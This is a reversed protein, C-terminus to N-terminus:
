QQYRRVHGGSRTIQHDISPRQSLNCTAVSASYICMLNVCVYREWICIETECWPLITLKDPKSHVADAIDECITIQKWNKIAPTCEQNEQNMKKTTEGHNYVWLFTVCLHWHCGQVVGQMKYCALRSRQALVLSLWKWQNRIVWSSKSCHQKRSTNRQYQVIYWTYKRARTPFNAHVLRRAISLDSYHAVRRSFHMRGSFVIVRSSSVIWWRRIFSVDNWRLHICSFCPSARIQTVHHRWRQLLQITLCRQPRVISYTNNQNNMQLQVSWYENSLALMSSNWLPDCLHLNRMLFSFIM